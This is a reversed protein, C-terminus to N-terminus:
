KLFNLVEERTPISAQAGFRTVSIAAATNAFSVADELKSRESIMVTLAGCFTDGAGTTDVANVKPASVLGTYEESFIFAGTSGMTIIVIKVGKKALVSAAKMASAENKVSIGTLKEVESENPIIISINKYLRDPLVAAPAPNLIITKNLESAYETIFNVTELPIELQLLIVDSSEIVNSIKIIDSPSLTNNSSDAVIISNEGSNNVTIVAIGSHKKPDTKVYDVNVGENKLYDMARQGFLDKGVKGFFSVNGGLRKAALAQNAGKGGMSMFFDGGLITEGPLPFRDTKIVMDTNSSGIVLIKKNIIM